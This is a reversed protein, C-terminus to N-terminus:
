QLVFCYANCFANESFMSRVEQTDTAPTPNSGVTELNHAKHSSWKEVGRMCYIAIMRM